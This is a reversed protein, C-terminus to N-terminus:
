GLAPMQPTELRICQLPSPIWLIWVLGCCRLCTSVIFLAVSRRLLSSRSFFFPSFFSFFVSKGRPTKSTNLLCATLKQPWSPPHNYQRTKNAPQFHFPSFLLRARVTFVQSASFRWLDCPVTQVWQFSFWFMFPEQAHPRKKKKRTRKWLYEPVNAKEALARKLKPQVAKPHFFLISLAFRWKYISQHITFLLIPMKPKPSLSSSNPVAALFDLLKISAFYAFLAIVLM